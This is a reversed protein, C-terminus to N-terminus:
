THNRVEKWTDIVKKVSEWPTSSYLADVPSLVFGGGSGLIEVADLVRKKIMEAPETELTVASNIGGLIATKESFLEKVKKFDAGGQLDDV